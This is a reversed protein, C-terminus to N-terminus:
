VPHTQTKLSLDLEQRHQRAEDLSNCLELITRRTSALNPRDFRLRQASERNRKSFAAGDILGQDELQAVLNLLLRACGEIRGSLEDFEDAM